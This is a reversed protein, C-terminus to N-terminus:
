IGSNHFVFFRRGRVSASSIVEVTGSQEDKMSHVFYICVPFFFENDTCDYRLM